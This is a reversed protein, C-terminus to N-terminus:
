CTSNLAFNSLTLQAPLLSRSTALSVLLNNADKHAFLPEWFQLLFDDLNKFGLQKYLGERYFAQSFGLFFSICDAPSTVDLRPLEKGWGSYIAAFAKKGEQPQGTSSYKGGQYKADLQLTMVLSRLFTINHESTRAAGCFPVIRQVMEPYQAAWQFSQAAGMSWGVVAYVTDIKLHKTVLTHQARVNQSTAVFHILKELIKRFWEHLLSSVDSMTTSPFNAPDNSNSPSASQGNGFLATAVIFYKAPNLGQM